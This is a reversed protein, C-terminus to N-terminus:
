GVMCQIGLLSVLSKLNYNYILIYIFIIYVWVEALVWGTGQSGTGLGSCDLRRRSDYEGLPM